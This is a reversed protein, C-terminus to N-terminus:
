TASGPLPRRQRTNSCGGPVVMAAATMCFPFAPEIGRKEALMYGHYYGYEITKAAPDFRPLWSVDGPFTITLKGSPNVDGFLVRALAHGAEMGPYSAMLIAPVEAKWEEM